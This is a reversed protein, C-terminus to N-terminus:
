PLDKGTTIAEIIAARTHPDLRRYPGYDLWLGEAALVAVHTATDLVGPTTDIWRSRMRHWVADAFESHVLSQYRTAAYTEQEDVTAHIYALAREAATVQEFDAALHAQARRDWQEFAAEQVAEVMAEKSPFHYLVGSRSSGTHAALAEYTLGHVGHREVLEMAAATLAARRSPRSM